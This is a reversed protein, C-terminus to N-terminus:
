SSLGLGEEHNDGQEGKDGGSSHSDLGLFEDRPTLSAGDKPREPTFPGDIQAVSIRWCIVM